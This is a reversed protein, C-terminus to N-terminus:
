ASTNYQLSHMVIEFLVFYATSAWMSCNAESKFEFIYNWSWHKGHGQSMNDYSDDFTVHLFAAFVNRIRQGVTWLVNFQKKLFKEVNKKLKFRFSFDTELAKYSFFTTLLLWYLPYSIAFHFSLM